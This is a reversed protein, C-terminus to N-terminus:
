RYKKGLLMEAIQKYMEDTIDATWVEGRNVGVRNFVEIEVREVREVGAIEGADTCKVFCATEIEMIEARWAKPNARVSIFEVAAKIAMKLTPFTKKNAIQPGTFELVYYM